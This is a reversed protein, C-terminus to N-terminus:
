LLLRVVSGEPIKESWCLREERKMEKENWGCLRECCEGKERESLQIEERGGPTKSPRSSITERENWIKRMRVQMKWIYKNKSEVVVM